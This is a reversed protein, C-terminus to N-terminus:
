HGLIQGSLTPSVQLGFCDGLSKKKDGAIFGLLGASYILKTSSEFCSNFTANM